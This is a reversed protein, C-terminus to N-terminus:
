VDSKLGCFTSGSEKLTAELESLLGICGTHQLTHLRLPSITVRFSTCAPTCTPFVNNASNENETFLSNCHNHASKGNRKGNNESKNIVNDERESYMVHNM